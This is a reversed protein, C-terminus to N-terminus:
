GSSWFQTWEPLLTETASSMRMTWSRRLRLRKRWARSTGEGGGERELALVKKRELVRKIREWLNRFPHVVGAYADEGRRFVGDVEIEYASDVAEDGRFGVEFAELFLVLVVLSVSRKEVAVDPLQVDLLRQRMELLHLLQTVSGRRKSVVVDHTEVSVYTLM